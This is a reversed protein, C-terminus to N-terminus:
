KWDDTDPIGLETAETLTEPEIPIVKSVKRTKRTRVPKAGKDDKDDFKKMWRTSFHAEKEIEFLQGEEILQGYYGKNKAVVKIGM